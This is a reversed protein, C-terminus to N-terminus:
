GTMKRREEMGKRKGAAGALWERIGDGDGKDLLDELWELEAKVEALGAKLNDRNDLFIDRWLEGDGAAIRTADMFGRGALELGAEEQVAVLAAAVAHPLHSVDALLRDHDEPSVKQVRMGLLKWFELVTEVAGADTRETPTMLCLADRLMEGRAFEVGRKESGAIPHSGVFRGWLAKEGAEVVKRKTSGVDTVVAGEALVPAIRSLLNGIIGVPTCVIVLECGEVAREPEMLALDIAGREIAAELTVSRHGYGIIECDKIVSKAALGISGGLLGVGLICIKKPPM